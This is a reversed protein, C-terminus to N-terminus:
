ILGGASTTSSYPGMIFFAVIRTGPRLTATGSGASARGRSRTGGSPGAPSGMMSSTRSYGNVLRHRYADLFVDLRSSVESTSQDILGFRAVSRGRACGLLTAPPVAFAAGSSGGDGTRGRHRGFLYSGSGQHPLVQLNSAGVIGDPM